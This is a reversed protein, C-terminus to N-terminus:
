AHKQHEKVVFNLEKDEIPNLAVIDPLTWNRIGRSWRSPNTTKAEEYVKKRNEIIKKDLGHHRQYPTLFNIGSHM